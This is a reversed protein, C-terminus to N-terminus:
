SYLQKKALFKSAINGKSMKSASAFQVYSTLTMDMMSVLQNLYDLEFHFILRHLILTNKIRQSGTPSRSQALNGTYFITYNFICLHYHNVINVKLETNILHM